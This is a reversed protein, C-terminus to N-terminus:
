KKNRNSQKKGNKNVAKKFDTYHNKKVPLIKDVINFKKAQQSTVWIDHEALLKEEIEKKTLGTCKIYHDIIRKHMRPVESFQAVMDSHTGNTVMSYTHSMFQTNKSAYRYGYDGNMFILLGGSAVLGFGYTTISSNINDMIDCIMWASCLSGGPSNIIIEIPFDYGLLMNKQDHIFLQRSVMEALEDNIEGCIFIKNSALAVSEELLQQQSIQPIDELENESEKNM